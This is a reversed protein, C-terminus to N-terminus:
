GAVILTDYAIQLGTSENFVQKIKNTCLIGMLGKVIFVNLHSTM